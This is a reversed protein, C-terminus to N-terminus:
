DVPIGVENLESTTGEILVAMERTNYTHCGRYLKYVTEGTETYDIPIAHPTELEAVVDPPLVTTWTMIEGNDDMMPQGYRTILLNKAYAKSVTIAEALKNVLIHFYANANRSRRATHKEIRIDVATELMKILQQEKTPDECSFTVLVKGTKYDKAMSEITGTLVM